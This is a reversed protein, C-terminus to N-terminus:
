NTHLRGSKQILTKLEANYSNKRILDELYVPMRYRWYHNPDAPNNIREDDPNDVRLEEDIAMLDQLLFISWMAPSKLHRIIIEKVIAPHCEEPPNGSMGTLENYFRRTKEHNEKWWGRITSMDHTSPQVISLYEADDPNFFESAQAKPMREVNLGLIGLRSMVEPVSHPVMGLDEGCVLMRTSRKLFPLKKMAEKEWFYDQREYFYNNYLWQLQGRTYESLNRFSSTEPMDIRFHFKQGSYGKEEFLIVNSILSFLADRYRTLKNKKLYDLAKRQTNVVDRLSFTGDHNRVVFENMAVQINKGFLQQLITDTIYPNCYRNYDFYIKNQGFESIDVPIAPVFRGMSGDISELPISWIRFFGLIHDIRFADFYNELRNFRRRWWEFGTQEMKEWNYTPFGWNQGVSSFDDPPAGAQEDMNYLSPDQWADCSYRYIGIPLDGKLKVQHKHAYEIAEKLQLHLHYQEYYYIAIRDYHKQSPSVLKEIAEEEYTSHKKWKNFDATKYKEKLFCFVAYPVLWHRNSDFFEKYVKDKLFASKQLQYLENIAARKTKMVKEYDVQPLVNLEKQKKSLKKLIAKDGGAIKELNIYLPHLAFASIAAYPYSDQWTHRASTDNIPLLQIMEIGTERCWDVLLKLDTFEGVGFSKKSRLSFVPINVGAAKWQPTPLRIFEEHLLAPRTQLEWNRLLRNDGDEYKVFKKLSTDFIGYKYSAPWENEEFSLETKFWDGKKQMMVPAQTDWNGLNSISGLLCVTQDESLGPAKIWFQHTFDQQPSKRKKKYAQPPAAKFIKSSFVNRYDGADVWTDVIHFNHGQDRLRSLDVYRGEDGDFIQQGDANVVVYYYHFKARASGPLEIRCEWMEENYYQMTVRRGAVERTDPEAESVLYIQQGFQTSYKIYFHLTMM